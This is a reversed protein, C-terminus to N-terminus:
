LRGKEMERSLLWMLYPAGLIGTMVGLPLQVGPIMARAALDALVTVTAGVVAAGGLPPAGVRVALPAALLAVFPVPGAVAVASAVLAVALGALVARARSVRLGLGTALDDGLELLQLARANLALLPVLVALCGAIQTAHGWHRAALSGSLWRAAETAETGTLRTMLFETGAQLTFGAGIGVLILRIPVIGARWSLAAVLLAAAIGGGAAGLTISLAGGGLSVVAMAGLGAGSTFGLVDPSALPNRLLSQLVAGALGFGAGALAATVVRPARIVGVLMAGPGEGRWLDHLITLPPLFVDGIALGALMALLLLPVLVRM